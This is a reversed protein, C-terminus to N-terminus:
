EEVEIEKLTIFEDMESEVANKVVKEIVSNWEEENKTQLEEYVKLPLEDKIKEMDINIQLKVKKIM